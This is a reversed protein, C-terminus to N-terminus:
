KAVRSSITAQDGIVLVIPDDAITRTLVVRVFHNSLSLASRATEIAAAELTENDIMNIVPVVTADDSGCLAGHSHSLLRAVHIPTLPEGLVAGTLAAIRDPRHAIKDSLPQAFVCASVIPIVTTTGPPVQPEHDDPAKIWRMRAGDAKVYTADLAAARHIDAILAPPLGGRCGPKDSSAAFAIRRADTAAMVADRVLDPPLVVDQDRYQEPVPITTVSATLGVRSPHATALRYLTTKKGGAGVACVIGNRAELIDLLRATM